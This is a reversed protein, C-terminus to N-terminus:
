NSACLSNPTGTPLTIWIVFNQSTGAPNYVVEQSSFKTATKTLGAIVAPSATGSPNTWICRGGSAGDNMYHWQNFGSTPPPLQAPRMGSWLNQMTLANGACDNGTEATSPDGICKLACVLTGTSPDSAPWGDGNNNTGYKLNCENIKARLLNAQSHVDSYVRDTISASGFDSSGASIVAALIGLMAIVFLIPGIAIGTDTSFRKM